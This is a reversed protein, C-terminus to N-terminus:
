IKIFSFHTIILVFRFSITHKREKARTSPIIGAVLTDAAFFILKLLLFIVILFPLLLVILTFFVFFFTVHFIKDPLFYMVKFFFLLVAAVILPLFFPLAFTCAFIPFFFSVQVTVTCFVLFGSFVFVGVGDGLVFGGAVGVGGVLLMLGVTVGVGGTM